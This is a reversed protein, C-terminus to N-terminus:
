LGALLDAVAPPPEKGPGSVILERAEQWDGGTVTYRTSVNEVHFGAFIERTEPVDNISLIFRGSITRLRDAIAAFQDRSFVGPGYYRESGHYPPDLYFLTHGHDYRDVFQRWDLCEIVVGAIRDHIAELVPGLKTTDFRGGSNKEVGFTRGAVKGGFATRQLYLFRSARELDTLTEPDCAALREFEARSTIQFKLCDIFQPYHRQLIRFFTAVERSVDNIVECPLAWARRLFVGGMGVFPEAYIEHPIAEIQRVLQDALRKKGGIYAAAPRAPTVPRLENVM